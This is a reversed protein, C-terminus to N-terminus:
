ALSPGRVPTAKRIIERLHSLQEVLPGPLGSSRLIFNSLSYQPDLRRASFSCYAPSDPQDHLQPAPVKMEAGIVISDTDLIFCLQCPQPQPQPQSQEDNGPCTPLKNESADLEPCQVCSDDIDECIVVCCATGSTHLVGLQDAICRSYATIFSIILLYSCLTRM